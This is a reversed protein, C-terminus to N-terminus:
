APLLSAASAVEPDVVAPFVVCTFSSAGGTTVAGAGFATRGGTLAAAFAIELASSL